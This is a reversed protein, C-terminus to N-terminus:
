EVTPADPSVPGTPPEDVVVAPPADPARFASALTPADSAYAPASIPSYPEPMAAPARVTAPVRAAAARGASRRRVLLLLVAAVIVLLLIVGALSAVGAGTLATSSIDISTQQGYHVTYTVTTGSVSGGSHATVWGPMSIAFSERMEKLMQAVEGDGNDTPQGDTPVMSMHGTVHFSNTFVGSSVVVHFADTSASSPAPGNAGADGTTLPQQLLTNLDAVSKFPRSFTWVTYTGDDHKSYSGGQQKVQAGVQDMSASIQNSGLALLQDSLGLALTYTGSGDGNLSVSRDEHICGSLALALMLGLALVVGIRSGRRM